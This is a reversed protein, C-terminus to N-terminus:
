ARSRYRRQRARHSCGEHCYRRHGHHQVFFLTCGPGECRGVPAARAVLEVCSTAFRARARALPAGRFVVRAAGDVLAAHACAAAAHHNVTAVAEAPPPQKHYLAFLIARTADRLERLVAAQEATLETPADGHLAAALWRAAVPPALFDLAAAGEGYLTNALEIALPEGLLPLDDNLDMLTVTVHIM